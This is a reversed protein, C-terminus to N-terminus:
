ARIDSTCILFLTVDTDIVQKGNLAVAIRPGRCKIAM